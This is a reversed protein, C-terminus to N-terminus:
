SGLPAYAARPVCIGLAPALRFSYIKFVRHAVPHYLLSKLCQISM